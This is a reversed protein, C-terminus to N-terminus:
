MKPNDTPRSQQEKYIMKLINSGIEAVGNASNSLVVVGINSERIFGIYSSCGSTTGQQWIMNVKSNVAVPSLIWALASYSGHLKKVDPIAVRPNQTNLLSAQIASHHLVLNEKLFLLLDTVNSHLGIAPIMADFIGPPVIKGKQDHGVLMKSQQITTPTIFTHQLMLPELVEQQLISEYTTGEKWALGNGLMAIGLPSFKYVLGTPYSTRYNNLFSYLNTLSYGEFPNSSKLSAKLNGPYVPLGSTNTALDCLLMHKPHYSPDAFCYYVTHHDNESNVPHQDAPKCIIEEYVPIMVSEPFYNQVPDNLDIKHDSELVALLSTTFVSTITGLEFVSSSDPKVGNGKETEGYVYIQEGSATVLGIVLAHNGKENAYPLAIKDISQQLNDQSFVFGFSFLFPLILISKM